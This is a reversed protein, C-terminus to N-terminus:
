GSMSRSILKARSRYDTGALVSSTLIFRAGAKLEATPIIPVPAFEDV